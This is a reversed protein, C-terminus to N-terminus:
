RHTKRHLEIKLQICTFRTKNNRFISSESQGIFDFEKSNCSWRKLECSIMGCLIYAQSLAVITGSQGCCHLYECLVAHSETRRWKKRHDQRGGRRRRRFVVCTLLQMQCKISLGHLVTYFCWRSYCPLDMCRAPEKQHKLRIGLRREQTIFTFNWVVRHHLATWKWWATLLKGQGFAKRRSTQVNETNTRLNEGCYVAEKWLGFVHPPLKPVIPWLLSHM